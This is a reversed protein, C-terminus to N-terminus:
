AETRLAETPEIRLARTAPPVCALLGVAIMLAATSGVLLATQVTEVGVALGWVLGGALVGLGVQALARTFITLIIRRPDAGLAARIGIERTRQSVTFSMLAYIGAASLGVVLATIAALLWTILREGRHAPRWVEDLPMLDDVSLSPDLSTVASHIRPVLADANPGSTRIFMQVTASSGPQLPHYVGVYGAPGLQVLDQYGGPGYANMDLDRVVGVIEYRREGEEGPRRPFRLRQGVPNRGDMHARVFGQDVIAVGVGSELDAPRFGRGAVIPAEMVEFFALDVALARAPVEIATDASAVEDGVRVREYPHNMGPLRSAFAVASVGPEGGLRRAAEDQLEATRALFREREAEPMANLPGDLHRILRGSLYEDAPFHLSEVRDGIADQGRAVAIPLLLICLAVQVAIVGTSVAGFRLRSGGAGMQSIGPRLNRGTARFAPIAGVLAASFAALAVVYLVTSPSLSQDFWFPPRSEQIEWFLSMARRTGWSAATLGAAAAISTLVLAEVFLQLVLRGRSAGLASRMVLEGQRAATRAFFLTAVNACIVVLLLVFPVNFASLALLGGGIFSDVYGEVRPRLQRHTEPFAAATRQGLATLEAQAEALTFGPALRGFVLIAPGERRQHEVARARFPVWVEQNLPFGFGRPMVGIVTSTSTGLQVTRGVVGADGQFMRQWLDHGIVVVPPAGAREDEELLSRGLLPSVRALQLGSATIQAGEVSALRGDETTLTYELVAAAGLEEVSRLEDRWTEFDHLARPEAAANALDRNEIVVIREGDALPLAPDLMDRTFEFWAASLGIAVTLALGGVLTLGPHKVMMRFGLKFDLSSIRHKM